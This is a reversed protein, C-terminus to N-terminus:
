GHVFPACRWTDLVHTMAAILCVSAYRRYCPLCVSLCVSPHSTRTTLCYALWSGALTWDSLECVWLNWKIDADWSENWSQKKTYFFFGLLFFSVTIFLTSPHRPASRSWFWLAGQQRWLRRWSRLMRKPFTPESRRRCRSWWSRLRWLRFSVFLWSFLRKWIM